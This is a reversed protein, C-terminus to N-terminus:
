KIDGINVETETGLVVQQKTFTKQTTIQDNAVEPILFGRVNLSFNSKVVRGKDTSIEINQDFSDIKTSFKYKKRDGWYQGESYYIQEIIKNMQTVYTTWIVCDYNITVYDPVVVNYVEYTEKRGFGGTLLSFRDYANKHSWKIPFQHVMNRDAKDVPVSDDKAVSTRRAMVVPVIVKGKKDRMYGTKQVFEWSEPDGYMVPVTIDVGNEIVSPKIIENFYFLIAEDIDQLSVSINKFTDDSRKIQHARNTRSPDNAYTKRDIASQQSDVLPAIRKPFPTIQPRYVVAQGDSNWLEPAIRWLDAKNIWLTM